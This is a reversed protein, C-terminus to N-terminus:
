KSKGGSNKQRSNAGVCKKKRKKQGGGGSLRGLYDAWPFDSYLPRAAIPESSRVAAAAAAVWASPRPLRWAVIDNFQGVPSCKHAHKEEPQPWSWVSNTTLRLGEWQQPLVLLFTYKSPGLSGLATLFYKKKHRADTEGSTLVPCNILQYDLRDCSYYKLSSSTVLVQSSVNSNTQNKNKKTTFKKKERLTVQLWLKWVSSSINECPNLIKRKMHSANSQYFLVDVSNRPQTQRQNM